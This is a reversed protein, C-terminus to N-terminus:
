TIVEFHGANEHEGAARSSAPLRAAAFYADANWGWFDDHRGVILAQL